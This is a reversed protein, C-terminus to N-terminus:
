GFIAEEVDSVDTSSGTQDLIYLSIRGTTFDDQRFPDAGDTSVVALGFPWTNRFARLLNPHVSLMLGAAKKANSNYSADLTWRQIRPRFTLTLTALSKDELVVSVQQNASATLTTIQKM